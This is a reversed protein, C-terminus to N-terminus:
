FVIFYHFMSYTQFPFCHFIAAYTLIKDFNRIDHCIVIYLKLSSKCEKSQIKPISASPLFFCFFHMKLSDRFDNRIISQPRQLWKLRKFFTKTLRCNWFRKGIQNSSRLFLSLFSYISKKRRLHEALCFNQSIM